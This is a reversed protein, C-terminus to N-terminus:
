PAVLSCTVMIADYVGMGGSIEHCFDALVRDWWLLHTVPGEPQTSLSVRPPPAVSGVSVVPVRRTERAPECPCGSIPCGCRQAHGSAVMM